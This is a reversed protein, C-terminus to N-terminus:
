RSASPVGVLFEVDHVVEAGLRDVHRRQRGELKRICDQEGVLRRRQRHAPDSPPARAPTEPAAPAARDYRPIALRRVTLCSSRASRNSLGRASLRRSGAPNRTRTARTGRFPIPAPASRHQRTPVSRDSGVSSRPSSQLQAQLLRTDLVDAEEGPATTIVVRAEVPRQRLTSVFRRVSAYGAPFGHDDVLDQWIAMANRGRGLADVILERYPECASAQPARSPRDGSVPAAGGTSVGTASAPSCGTSMESSDTSVESPIAPRAPRAPPRGRGRVTLGAAKLTAAPPRAGSGPPRKSGGCRGGM